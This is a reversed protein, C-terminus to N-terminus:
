KHAELENTSELLELALCDECLENKSQVRNQETCNSGYGCPFSTTENM